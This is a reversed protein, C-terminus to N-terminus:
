RRDNVSCDHHSEGSGTRGPHGSRHLRGPRRRRIRSRFSSGHRRHAHQVRRRRGRPLQQHDGSINGGSRDTDREAQYGIGEFWPGRERQLYVHFWGLGAPHAPRRAWVAGRYAAMVAVDPILFGLAGALEFVGTATVLFPAAPPKAPVMRILDPRTRPHFHAIATFVFMAALAFRLAGRWSNAQHWSLTLGLSRVAVLSVVMVILPAM